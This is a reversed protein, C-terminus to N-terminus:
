QIGLVNRIQPILRGSSPLECNEILVEGNSGLLIYRPIGHVQFPPKSALEGVAFYHFGALRNSIIAEKWREYAGPSDVSVYFKGISNDKLFKNLETSHQFERICPGCWTAWFSVLVSKGGMFMSTIQHLNDVEFRGFSNFGNEVSFTALVYEKSQLAQLRNLIPNYISNPFVSQFLARQTDLAISDLIGVATNTIITSAVVMEQEEKSLYNSEAYVSSLGLNVKEFPLLGDARLNAKSRKSIGYNFIRDHLIFLDNLENFFSVSDTKNLFDRETFLGIRAARFLFEDITQSEAFNFQKQNIYNNELLASLVVINKDIQSNIFTFFSKEPSNMYDTFTKDARAFGSTSKLDFVYQHFDAYKGKFQPPQVSDLIIELTEGPLMFVVFNSSWRYGRALMTFTSISDPIEFVLFNDNTTQTEFYPEYFFNVINKISYKLTVNKEATSDPFRVTLQRTSDQKQTCSYFLALVLISLITKKM